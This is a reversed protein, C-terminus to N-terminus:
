TATQRPSLSDALPSGAAQEGRSNYLCGSVCIVRGDEVRDNQYFAGGYYMPVETLKKTPDAEIAKRVDQPVFPVYRVPQFTIKDILCIEENGDAQVLLQVEELTLPHKVLASFENVTEWGVFRIPAFGANRISDRALLWRHAEATVTEPGRTIQFLTTGTAREQTVAAAVDKVLDVHAPTTPPSTTTATSSSSEDSPTIPKKEAKAKM